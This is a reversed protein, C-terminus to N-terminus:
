SESLRMSSRQTTLNCFLAWLWSEGYRKTSKKQKKPGKRRKEETM